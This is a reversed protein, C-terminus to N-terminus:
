QPDFQQNVWSLGLKDSVTAFLQIAACNTQSENRIGRQHSIEHALVFVGTATTNANDTTPAEIAKCLTNDLFIDPKGSMTENTHLAAGDIIFNDKVNEDFLRMDANCIVLLDKMGTLDTAVKGLSLEIPSRTLARISEDDIKQHEEAINVLMNVVLYAILIRRTVKLYSNFSSLRSRPKPTSEFFESRLSYSPSTRSVM